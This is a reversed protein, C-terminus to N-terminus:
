LTTIKDRVVGLTPNLDQDSEFTKSIRVNDYNLNSSVKLNYSNLMIIYYYGREDQYSRIEKGKKNKKLVCSYFPQFSLNADAFLVVMFKKCM